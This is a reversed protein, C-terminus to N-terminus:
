LFFNTRSFIYRVNSETTNICAITCLPFGLLIIKHASIYLKGNYINLSVTDVFM